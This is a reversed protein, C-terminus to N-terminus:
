AMSNEIPIATLPRVDQGGQSALYPRSSKVAGRSGLGVRGKGLV